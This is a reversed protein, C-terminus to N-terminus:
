LGKWNQWRPSLILNFIPLTTVYLLHSSMVNVRESLPIRAGTGKFKLLLKVRAEEDAFVTLQVTCQRKGLGFAGGHVWM